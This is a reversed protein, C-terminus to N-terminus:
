QYANQLVNYRLFQGARGTRGRKVLPTVRETNYDNVSATALAHSEATSARIAPGFAAAVGSM